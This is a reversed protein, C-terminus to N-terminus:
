LDLKTRAKPGLIRTECILSMALTTFAKRDSVNGGLCAMAYLKGYLVGLSKTRITKLYTLATKHQNLECLHRALLPVHSPSDTLDDVQTYIKM